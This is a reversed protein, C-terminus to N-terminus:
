QAYAGALESSQASIASAIGDPGAELIGRSSSVVTNSSASGYISRLSDFSAGQFGFGPALIPTATLDGDGIGFDSLTVTAGIVVGYSGLPSANGKNVDAV